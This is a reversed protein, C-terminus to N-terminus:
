RLACFPALCGQAAIRLISPTPSTVMMGARLQRLTDFTRRTMVLASPDPTGVMSAVTGPKWDVKHTPKM